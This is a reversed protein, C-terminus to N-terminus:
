VKKQTPLSCCRFYERSSPALSKAVWSGGVGADAAAIVRIAPRLQLVATRTRRRFRFPRRPFQPRPKGDLARDRITLSFYVPFLRMAAAARCWPHVVPVHPILMLSRSGRLHLPIPPVRKRRDHIRRPP